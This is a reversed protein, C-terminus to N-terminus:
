KNQTKKRERRNERNNERNHNETKRQKGQRRYEEKKTGNGRRRKKQTRIYYESPTHLQDAGGRQEGQSRRQTLVKARQRDAICGQRQIQVSHCYDDTFGGTIYKTKPKAQIQITDM